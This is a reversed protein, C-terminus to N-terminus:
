ERGLAIIVEYNDEIVKALLEEFKKDDKFNDTYSKETM